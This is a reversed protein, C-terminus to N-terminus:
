HRMFNQVKEKWIDCKVCRESVYMCIAIQAISRASDAAVRVINVAERQALYVRLPIFFEANKM